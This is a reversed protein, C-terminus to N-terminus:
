AEDKSTILKAVYARELPVAGRIAILLPRHKAPFATKKPQASMVIAVLSLLIPM